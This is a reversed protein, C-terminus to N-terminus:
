VDEKNCGSYRYASILHFPQFANGVVRYIKKFNQKANPVASLPTSSARQRQSKSDFFRMVLRLPANSINIEVKLVTFSLTQKHLVFCFLASPNTTWYKKHLIKTKM